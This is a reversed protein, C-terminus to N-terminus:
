ATYEQLHQSQHDHEHLKGLCFGTAGVGLMAVAM